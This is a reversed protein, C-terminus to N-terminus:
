ATNRKLQRENKYIKNLKRRNGQWSQWRQGYIQSINAWREELPQAVERSQEPCTVQEWALCAGTHKLQKVAVRAGALTVGLSQPLSVATVGALTITVTKLICFSCLGLISCQLCREVELYVYFLSLHLGGGNSKITKDGKLKIRKQKHFLPVYFNNRYHCLFHIRTNWVPFIKVKGWIQAGQQMQCDEGKTRERTLTSSDGATTLCPM